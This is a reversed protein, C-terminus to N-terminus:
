HTESIDQVAVTRIPELHHRAMAGECSGGGGCGCSSSSCSCDGDYIM